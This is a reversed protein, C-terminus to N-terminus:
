RHEVVLFVNVLWGSKKDPGAPKIETEYGLGRKKRAFREAASKSAFWSVDVLHRAATAKEM